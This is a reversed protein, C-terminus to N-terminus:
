VSSVTKTLEEAHHSILVHGYHAQIMQVSTGMNMALKDIATQANLRRTAYTHRLSYLTRSKQESDTNLGLGTLVAIFPGHFRATQSGNPKVWLRVNSGPNPHQARIAEVVECLEAVAVVTRPGPRATGCLYSAIRIHAVVVHFM